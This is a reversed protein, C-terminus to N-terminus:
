GVEGGREGRRGCRWGRRARGHVSPMGRPAETEGPSPRPAGVASQRDLEATWQRMGRPSDWAAVGVLWGRRVYGCVQHGLSRAGALAITDGALAPAGAAQIRVGHQASWFRPLPTFPRAGAGALLSDAAARGMEVANIWHEVRRPTEDFRLNPWRALDGAVVVDQAGIAHCTTDCLVGDELVLGSGRLWYSAPIAGVALVVCRASVQSGDTLQVAIGGPHPAFRWVTVGLALRVGADQHLQTVAAGMREGLVDGLLDGGRDVLLVPIDMARLSAALECGLFGGGVIVVPGQGATVNRQLALGDNMTRLVQVRRDHRPAGPLHRAQAGTAVVLGDYRLEEGRPLLLLRRDVDLAAARSGLRWVVDLEPLGPLTLEEPGAQGLLLQQALAPRHYPLRPEEGVVLVEGSFGQERLREAANLGAPGTGVVVIREARGTLAM